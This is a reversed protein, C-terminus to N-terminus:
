NAPILYLSEGRDNDLALVKEEPPGVEVLHGVIYCDVHGGSFEVKLYAENGGGIKGYGGCYNTLSYTVTCTEDSDTITMTGDDAFTWTVNGRDVEGFLGNHDFVWTGVAVMQNQLTDLSDDVTQTVSSNAPIGAEIAGTASLALGTLVTCTVLGILHVSLNSYGDEM